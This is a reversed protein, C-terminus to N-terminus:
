GNDRALIRRAKHRRTVICRQGFDHMTVCILHTYDLPTNNIPLFRPNSNLISYGIQFDKYANVSFMENKRSSYLTERYPFCVRGNIYKSKILCKTCSYFGTHRKTCLVFSKALADCILTFL